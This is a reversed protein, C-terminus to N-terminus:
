YGYCLVNLVSLPVGNLGGSRFLFKRSSVGYKGRAVLYASESRADRHFGAALGNAFRSSKTSRSRMTTPWRIQRRNIRGFVAAIPPFGSQVHVVRWQRHFDATPRLIHAGPSRARDGNPVRATAPLRHVPPEVGAARLRRSKRGRERRHGHRRVPPGNHPPMLIPGEPVCLIWAKSM